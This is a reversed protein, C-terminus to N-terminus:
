AQTSLSHADIERAFRRGAAYRAVEDVAAAGIRELENGISGAIHPTLTVNPLEYLPSDSPLPQPETVDLVARLRGSVLERELAKQDLLSGRATNILTAGDPMLELRRADIMHHTSPLAPAHLSVISASACLEDLEVKRAGLAWAESASIFVDYILVHYDHARLMGLLRRGVRSAGVIGIVRGHNGMDAPLMAPDWDARARRFTGEVERLRKGASLIASLAYEAVPFANIGAASTVAIGRAFLDPTVIGKVTGACHVVGRLYPAVDLVERTLVPAGWGTLLLEADRFIVAEDRALPDTLPRPSLLTACQRLRALQQPPFLQPVFESLMAFAVAPRRTM